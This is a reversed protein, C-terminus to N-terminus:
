EEHTSGMDLMMMVATAGANRASCRGNVNATGVPVARGGGEFVIAADYEGRDWSPYGAQAGAAVLCEIPVSAAVKEPNKSVHGTTAVGPPDPLCAEVCEEPCKAQASEHRITPHPNLVRGEADDNIMVMHVVRTEGRRGRADEHVKVPGPRQAEPFRQGKRLAGLVKRPQTM